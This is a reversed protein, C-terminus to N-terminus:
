IVFAIGRKGERRKEKEGERERVEHERWDSSVVEVNCIHIVSGVEWEWVWSFLIYGRFYIFKVQLDHKNKDGGCVCVCLQGVCPWVLGIWRRRKGRGRETEDFIFLVSILFLLALYWVYMFGFCCMFLIGQFVCVYVCLPRLGTCTRTRFRVRSCFGFTLHSHDFILANSPCCPTHLSYVTHCYMIVRGITERHLHLAAFPLLVPLLRM